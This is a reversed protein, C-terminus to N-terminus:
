TVYSLFELLTPYKHNPFRQNYFYTSILIICLSLSLFLVVKFSTFIQKLVSLLSSNSSKM